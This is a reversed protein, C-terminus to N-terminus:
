ITLTKTIIQKPISKHEKKFILGKIILYTESLNFFYKGTVACFVNLFLLNLFDCM